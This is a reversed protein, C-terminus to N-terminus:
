VCTFRYKAKSKLVGRAELMKGRPMQAPVNKNWECM